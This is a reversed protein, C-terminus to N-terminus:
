KKTEPQPRQPALLALADRAIAWAAHAGAYHGRPLGSAAFEITKYADDLRAQLARVVAEPVAPAATRLTSLEREALEARELNCQACGFTISGGYVSGTDYYHRPLGAHKTCEESYKPSAIM